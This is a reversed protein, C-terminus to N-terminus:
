EVGLRLEEPFTERCVRERDNAPVTANMDRIAARGAAVMQEAGDPSFDAVRHDYGPVGMYTTGIPNLAAYTEVFRDAIEYVTPM